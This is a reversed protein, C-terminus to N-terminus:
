HDPWPIVVPESFGHKEVTYLKGSSPLSCSDDDTVTYSTTFQNEFGATWWLYAGNQCVWAEILYGRDDDETMWVKDWTITVQDGKRAARVNKPPGYMNSGVRELHLDVYFLASVDGTVEVVSPSVWCHYNLKDWKVYLWDSYPWRGDVIGRDGQYLDAAHLYAKSPGYRCHAAAVSVVADPYDYTPSPTITPTATITPTPTETPTLTVTPSPTSTQTDTPTATVTVTSTPTWAAATESQQGAAQTQQYQEWPACSALTLALLFLGQWGILSMKRM